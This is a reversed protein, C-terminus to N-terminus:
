ASQGQDGEPSIWVVQDLNVTLFDSSYIEEGRANYVTANTVAIFREAKNVEDKFRESPRVHVDGHIQVTLTQLVARVTQKTIVDTFYKGKHDIHLSM